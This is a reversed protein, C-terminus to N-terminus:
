PAPPFVALAYVSESSKESEGVSNVASYQFYLLTGKTLSDAAVTLTHELTDSESFTKVLRLTASDLAKLYLKYSSIPAGNSEICGEIRITISSITVSVM